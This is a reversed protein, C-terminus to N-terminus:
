EEGRMDAGCNPCFDWHKNYPSDKACVSCFDNLPLGLHNLWQGMKREPEASPLAEIAELAKNSNIIKIEMMDESLYEGCEVWQSFSIKKLTDIAEKRSISDDRM